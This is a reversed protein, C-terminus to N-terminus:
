FGRGGGREAERVAKEVYDGVINMGQAAMKKVLKQADQYIILQSSAFRMHQADIKQMTKNVDDKVQRAAAFLETGSARKSKKAAALAAVLRQRLEPDTIGALAAEENVQAENQRGRANEMLDHVMDLQNNCEGTRNMFNREAPYSLLAAFILAYHAYGEALAAIVAMDVRATGQAPLSAPPAVQRGPMLRINLEPHRVLPKERIQRLMVIDNALSEVSLRGTRDFGDGAGQAFARIADHFYEIRPRFDEPRAMIGGAEELSRIEQYIRTILGLLAQQQERTPKM